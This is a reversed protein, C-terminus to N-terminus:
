FKVNDGRHYHSEFDRGPIIKNETIFCTILGHPTVDFAPNLGNINLRFDSPSFDFVENEDRQEICIEEGTSITKDITSTPAVVYFPIGHFKALIAIAYTGIKNATDGNAAIRDAGVFVAAIDGQKMFYGVATDAILRCPIKFKHALEWVTLLGQKRPGTLDAYVSVDKHARCIAKIGALATGEGATALAGTNCHTLICKKGITSLKENWLSLCQDAMSQCCRIDDDFFKLAQDFIVVRDLPKNGPLLINLWNRANVATPRAKILREKADILEPESYRFQTRQGLPREQAMKALFLASTVGIAPAGRVQLEKIATLTKELTNLNIWKEEFPLETQNLIELRLSGDEDRSFRISFSERIINM